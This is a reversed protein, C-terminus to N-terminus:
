IWQVKRSQSVSKFTVKREEPLENFHHCCFVLRGGTSVEVAIQGEAPCRSHDCTENVPPAVAEHPHTVTSM